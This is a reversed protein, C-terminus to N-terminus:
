FFLYITYKRTITFNVIQNTFSFFEQHDPMNLVLLGCNLYIKYTKM